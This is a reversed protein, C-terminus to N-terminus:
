ASNRHFLRVSSSRISNVVVVVVVVVVVDNDDDDQVVAAAAADDDDEEEEGNSRILFMISREPIDPVFMVSQFLLFSLLVFM